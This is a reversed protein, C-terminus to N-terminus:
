SAPMGAKELAEQLRGRMAAFNSHSNPNANENAIVKAV